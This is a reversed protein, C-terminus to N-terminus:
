AFEIAADVRRDIDETPVGLIKAVAHLYEREEDVYEKDAAAAEILLELAEDRVNEPMGLLTEAAEVGDMIPFLFGRDDVPLEFRALLRDVFHDEAEALHDDVVVIGTILQCVTRRTEEDM